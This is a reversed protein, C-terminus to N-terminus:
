DWRLRRSCRPHSFAIHMECLKARTCSPVNSKVDLIVAFEQIANAIMTLTYSEMFTLGTRDLVALLGSLKHVLAPIAHILCKKEEGGKGSALPTQNGIEIGFRM